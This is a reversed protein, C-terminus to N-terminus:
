PASGARVQAAGMERAVLVLGTRDGAYSTGEVDEGYEQGYSLRPLLLLVTFAGLANRM